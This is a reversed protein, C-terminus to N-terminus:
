PRAPFAIREAGSAPTRRSQLEQERRTLTDALLQLEEGLRGLPNSRDVWLSPVTEGRRL